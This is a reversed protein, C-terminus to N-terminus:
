VCEGPEQGWALVSDPRHGRQASCAPRFVLALRFHNNMLAAFRRAYDDYTMAMGRNNIFMPRYEEEFPHTLLFQKHHEYAATFAELFPPYVCQRREKKIKGCIVGDSRMPLERTLDIEVKVTRGEIWTFILGSGMPAGEQRVNCVEGACLGAFAQLCIALAIDPAYRFALNLPIRFANTPLKRFAAGAKPIGRVQFAPLKRKKLKGYKNFVTKETYLDEKTLTMCGGFKWCLKGFFATVTFVCKQVSLEGRYGGNPLQETAYDRFFQELAERSIKFIHDIHFDDYHRILVYNLMMCIYRLKSEADSTIPAFVKGEYIGTYNHLNTFRVIVGYNNKVVIFYRTYVEGNAAILKHGYLGYRYKHWWDEEPGLLSIVEGVSAGGHSHGGRAFGQGSGTIM